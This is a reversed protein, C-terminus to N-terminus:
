ISMLRKVLVHLSMEGCYLLPHANIAHQPEDEVLQAGACNLARPQKKEIWSVSWGARVM